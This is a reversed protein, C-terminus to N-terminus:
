KLTGGNGPTQGQLSWGLGQRQPRGEREGNVYLSGKLGLHIRVLGLYIIVWIVELGHAEDNRRSLPISWFSKM